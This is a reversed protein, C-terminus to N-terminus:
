PSLKSQDAFIEVATAKASLWVESGPGLRLEAAAAPTLEVVASPTAEVRARLRDGVPQLDVVRGPWVNRASASEPRGLQVGISAPRVTVLVRDGAAVADDATGVMTGGGDLRVGDGGLTGAYLNLGVLRAVYPSVPRRAVEAPTGSQTIRGGELVSIRDALLMAELPDHTVLVTPGSWDALHQRLFDRVDAKAKVDLAAMPEDMLLVQPSRALARALAVKQAQGGSLEAPLRRGLDRLGLTALWGEASARAEARHAGGARVGFAVNDRVSLHPFLRHEQFVYGVPRLEAPRGTWDQDGVRLTGTFPHLGAIGRLLTTKGSGNPGLLAHVEGAGVELEVQLRFGPRAARGNLRLVSADTM